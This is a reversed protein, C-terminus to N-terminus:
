LAARAGCGPCTLGRCHFLLGLPPRRSTKARTCQAPKVIRTSKKFYLTEEHHSSTLKPGQGPHPPTGAPIPGDCGGGALQM